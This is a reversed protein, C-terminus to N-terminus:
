QEETQEFSDCKSYLIPTKDLLSIVPPGEDGSYMRRIGTCHALSQALLKGETGKIAAVEPLIYTWFVDFTIRKGFLVGEAFTNSVPDFFHAVIRRFIHRADASTFDIPPDFPILATDYCLRVFDHNTMEGTPAFRMFTKECADKLTQDVGDAVNQEEEEKACNTPTQEPSRATDILLPKQITQPTKPTMKMPSRVPSSGTEARHRYVLQIRALNMRLEERNLERSVSRTVAPNPSKIPSPCQQIRRVENERRVRVQALMRRIMCQISVAASNRYSEMEETSPDECITHDTVSGDDGEIAEVWCLKNVMEDVSLGKSQAIEPILEFRFIMYNVIPINNSALVSTRKFLNDVDHIKFDKKSVIKTRRCFSIFLERNMEGRCFSLFLQLLERECVDSTVIMFKECNVGSERERMSKYLIEPTLELAKEEITFKSENNVCLERIDKESLNTVSDKAVAKNVSGSAGM